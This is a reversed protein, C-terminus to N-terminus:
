DTNIRRWPSVACRSVMADFALEYDARHAFSEIDSTTLKGWKERQAVRRLLGTRHTDADTELFLKISTIQNYHPIKELANFKFISSEYESDSLGYEFREVIRRGYWSWDFIRSRAQHWFSNGCVGCAHIVSRKLVRCVFRIFNLNKCIGPM